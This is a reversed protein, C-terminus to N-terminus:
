DALLDEVLAGRVAGSVPTEAQYAPHSVKLTAVRRLDCLAAVQVTNLPFRVFQVASIRGEEYQDPDFVGQVTEAGELSLTVSNQLGVLRPLM